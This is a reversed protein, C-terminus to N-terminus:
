QCAIDARRRVLVPRGPLRQGTAARVPLADAAPGPVLRPRGRRARQHRARLDAHRAARVRGRGHRRPRPHVRPDPGQRLLQRAARVYRRDVPQRAHGHREAGRRRRQGHAAPLIPAVAHGGAAPYLGFELHPGTSIGVIGAGVETIQQGAQVQAGVPVTDPGAHGYYFSKGALPGSTVKLVPANPGFGPLGEQTIVGPGVAYEPTGAPAPIDIGADYSWSSPLMENAPLPLSVLQGNGTGAPTSGPCCSGATTLSVPVATGAGTGTGGAAALAQVAYTRRATDNCPSGPIVVMYAVYGSCVEYATEFMTAAEQPSSASNLESILQPYSTQVDWVLYELQTPLSAPPLGHSAAFADLSLEGSPGRVHYWSASWQAIGGGGGGDSLAPDFNSNEQELNGVIGAAGAPQFGQSEFYRVIQGATQTGPAPAGASSTDCNNTPSLLLIIALPLGLLLALAAALIAPSPSRSM